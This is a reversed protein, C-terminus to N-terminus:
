DDYRKTNFSRCYPCRDPTTAGAPDEVRWTRHCEFCEVLIRSTSIATM